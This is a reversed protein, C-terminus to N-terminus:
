TWMGPGSGIVIGDFSLRRLRYATGPTGVKLTSPARATQAATEHFVSFVYAYHGENGLSQLAAPTPTLARRRRRTWPATCAVTPVQLASWIQEAIRSRLLDSNGRSFTDFEMREDRIGPSLCTRGERGRPLVREFMREIQASEQCM